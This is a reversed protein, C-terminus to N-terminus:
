KRGKDRGYIWHGYESDKFFDVDVFHEVNDYKPLGKKVIGDSHYTYFLPNVRSVFIIKFTEQLHQVFHKFAVAFHSHLIDFIGFDQFAKGREGNHSKATGQDADNPSEDRSKYSTKRILNPDNFWNEDKNHTVQSVEVSFDKV